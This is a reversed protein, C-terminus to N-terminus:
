EVAHDMVEDWTYLPRGFDSVTHLAKGRRAQWKERYISPFYTMYYDCTAEWQAVSIAKGYHQCWGVSVVTPGVGEPERSDPRRYDIAPTPRWAMLIERKEPGFWRRGNLLEQGPRIPSSDDPTLYADFLPVRIGDVDRVAPDRLFAALEPSFREDADAYVVMDPHHLLARHYLLRRNATEEWIRHRSRWRRNSIVEVVAPHSRAIQATGDDSADDFVLIGDVITALHDLSDRLILSENRIRMLGLIGGAPPAM